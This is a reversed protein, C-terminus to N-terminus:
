ARPETPRLVQGQKNKREGQVIYVKGVFRRPCSRTETVVKSALM